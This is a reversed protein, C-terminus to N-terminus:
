ISHSWAKKFNDASWDVDSVHLSLGGEDELTAKM